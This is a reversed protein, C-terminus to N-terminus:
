QIIQGITAVAVLQERYNVIYVFYWWNANGKKACGIRKKANYKFVSDINQGKLHQPTDKIIENVVSLNIRTTEM